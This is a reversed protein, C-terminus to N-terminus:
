YGCPRRRLLRARAPKRHLGALPVLFNETFLEGRGTVFSVPISADRYAITVMGQSRAKLLTGALEVPAEQALAFRAALVLWAALALKRPWAM